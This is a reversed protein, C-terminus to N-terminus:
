GHYHLYRLRSVPESCFIYFRLGMLNYFYRARLLIFRVLASRSIIGVIKISFVFINPDPFIALVSQNCCHIEHYKQLLCILDSNRDLECCNASGQYLGTKQHNNSSIVSTNDFPATIRLQTNICPLYIYVKLIFM